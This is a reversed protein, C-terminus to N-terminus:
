PSLHRPDFQVQELRSIREKLEALEEKHKREQPTSACTHKITIQGFATIFTLEDSSILDYVTQSDNPTRM